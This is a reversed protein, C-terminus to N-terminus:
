VVIKLRDPLREVVDLRERLAPNAKPAHEKEELVSV